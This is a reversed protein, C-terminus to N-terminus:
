KMRKCGGCCKGTAEKKCAHGPEDHDHDQKETDESQIVSKEESSQNAENKSTIVGALKSMQELSRRISGTPDQILGMSSDEKKQKERYVDEGGVISM